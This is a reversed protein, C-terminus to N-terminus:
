TSSVYTQALRVAQLHGGLFQRVEHIAIAGIVEEGGGSEEVVAVKGELIVFFDGNGDGERHLVHGRGDRRREGVRMLAAIQEESLRPFAGYLDDAARQPEVIPERIATM